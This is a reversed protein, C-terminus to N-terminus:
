GGFEFQVDEIYLTQEDVGYLFEVSLWVAVGPQVDFYFEAIQGRGV